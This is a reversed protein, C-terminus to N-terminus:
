ETAFGLDDEDPLVAEATKTEAEVADATVGFCVCTLDDSQKTDGVHTQIDGLIADMVGQASAPAAQVTRALREEGYQEHDADMAETVGDSVICVVDGPHLEYSSQEFEFGPAVGLPFGPEGGVEIVDDEAARRVLPMCHAANAIWIEHTRVDVSIFAMTVFVDPMDSDAQRDNLFPMVVGPDDHQVSYFRVDSSMRAMMLAAPIGKGSVDGVVVAMRNESQPVFDYLDGGINLASRYFATFELGDVRPPSKPLFSQQVQTAIKMDRETRDQAMLKEHMNASAIALATQAAVGTLMELDEETFKKDQRETDVHIIGVLNEGAILPACMMSRINFSMISVAGSFRDDDMADMSLLALRKETVESVIKRSITIEESLGQRNKAAAPQLEGHSDYLMLFGRDAQPFAEFLQDLIVGLLEDIDLVTQLSNSIKVITRLRESLKATDGDAPAAFVGGVMTAGVDLTGQIASGGAPETDRIKIDAVRTEPRAGAAAPEGSVFRFAHDSIQIVTQDRLLTPEAIREGNVYTGNGSGMDEAMVGSATRYVRAHKRSAGPDDLKLTAELSRGIMADDPLEFTQGKLGGDIGELKIM